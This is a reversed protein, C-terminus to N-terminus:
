QPKSSSQMSDTIVKVFRCIKVTALRRIQLCLIDKRKYKEENIEDKTYLDKVIKNWDIGLSKKTKTTHPKFNGM